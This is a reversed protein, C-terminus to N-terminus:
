RERRDWKVDTLWAWIFPGQGTTGYTAVIYDGMKKQANLQKMTDLFVSRTSDVQAMRTAVSASKDDHEWSLQSSGSFTLAPLFIGASFGGLTTVRNAISATANNTGYAGADIYRYNGISYNLYRAIALARRASSTSSSAGATDVYATKIWDATVNEEMDYRAMRAASHIRLERLTGADNVMIKRPGLISRTTGGPYQEDSATGWNYVDTIGSHVIAMLTSDPTTSFLSSYIDLRTRDITSFHTATSDMVYKIRSVKQSYSGSGVLDDAGDPWGYASSVTLRINSPYRAQWAVAQANVGNPDTHMYRPYCVLELKIGNAVAYDVNRKVGAAYQVTDSGVEAAGLASRGFAYAIVPIEVPTVKTFMAFATLWNGMNADVEANPLYIVRHNGSGVTMWMNSYRTKTANRTATYRGMLPVVWSFTASDSNVVLAEELNSTTWLYLSDGQADKYAEGKGSTYATCEVIGSIATAFNTAHYLFGSGAIPVLLPIPFARTSNRNIYHDFHYMGQTTCNAQTQLYYVNPMNLIVAMDYDGYHAGVGGVIPDTAYLSNIFTTDSFMVTEYDWGQVEHARAFRNAAMYASNNQNAVKSCVLV